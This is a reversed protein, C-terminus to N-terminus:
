RAGISEHSCKQITSSVRTAKKSHFFHDVINRLFSIPCESGNSCQRSASDAASACRSWRMAGARATCHLEAIANTTIITGTAGVPHGMSISSGNPNVKAPDFGLEQIVACTQAAFAENSEIVDLDSVQMGTRVLVKRTAPVPGIGMYAPEVGAHAYGVLRAVPKRGLAKMRGGEALVVAAAGDNICSANGATVLGDKKFAPKM